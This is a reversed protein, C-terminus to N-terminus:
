SGEDRSQSDRSLRLEATARGGPALEAVIDTFGRTVLDKSRDLFGSVPSSPENEAFFRALRQLAAVVDARHAIAGPSPADPPSGGNSARSLADRLSRLAAQANTVAGAIDPPAAGDAADPTADEGEAGTRAAGNGLTGLAAEIADAAATAEAIAAAPVPAAGNGGAAPRAQDLASADIDGLKLAAKGPGEPAVTDLLKAFDSGVLGRIKILILPVPSSRAHQGYWAIIADILALAEDTDAIMGPAPGAPAEAAAAPEVTVAAETAGEAAAPAKDFPELYGLLRELSAVSQGFAVPDAGDQGSVFAAIEELQDRAERAARITVAVAELAGDEDGVLAELQGSELALEDGKPRAAGAAIAFTRVTVPGARPSMHIAGTELLDPLAQDLATLFMVRDFYDGDEDAAPHLGEWFDALSRRMLDLAAAAGQVGRTACQARVMPELIAMDKSRKLLRLGLTSARGWNPPVAPVERTGDWREPTGTCSAKFEVFDKDHVLDPGCPAEPGDIPEYLEPPLTFEPQDVPM